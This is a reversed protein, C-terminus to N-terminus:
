KLEIFVVILISIKKLFNIKADTFGFIMFHYFVEGFCRKVNLGKLHVYKPLFENWYWWPKTRFIFNFLPWKYSRNLTNEFTFLWISSRVTILCLFHRVAWLCGSSFFVGLHAVILVALSLCWASVRSHLNLDPDDCLLLGSGGNWLWIPFWLWLGHNVHLSDCLTLLTAFILFRYLWTGCRISSILPFTVFECNSM